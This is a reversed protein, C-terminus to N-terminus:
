SIRALKTDNRHGKITKTTLQTNAKERPAQSERERYIYIYNEKETERERERETETM